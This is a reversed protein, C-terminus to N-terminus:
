SKIVLDDSKLLIKDTKLTEVVQGKTIQILFCPRGKWGCGGWKTINVTPIDKEVSAEEASGEEATALTTICCLTGVMLLAFLIKVKM